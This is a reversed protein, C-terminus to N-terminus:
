DRYNDADEAPPEQEIFADVRATVHCTSDEGELLLLQDRRTQRGEDHWQCRGNLFKGARTLPLAHQLDIDGLHSRLVRTVRM